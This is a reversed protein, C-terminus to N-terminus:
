LLTINNFKPIRYNIEILNNDFRETPFPWLETTEAHFYDSNVYLVTYRCKKCHVERGVFDFLNYVTLDTNFNTQDYSLFFSAKRLAVSRQM